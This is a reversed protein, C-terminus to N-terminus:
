VYFDGNGTAFGIVVFAILLSNKSLSASQIFMYLFIVLLAALLLILGITMFAQTAKYWDAFCLATGAIIEVGILMM